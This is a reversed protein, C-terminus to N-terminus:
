VSFATWDVIGPCAKKLVRNARVKPEIFFGLVGTDNDTSVAHYKFQNLSERRNYIYGSFPHFLLPACHRVNFRVVSSAIERQNVLYNASHNIKMGM